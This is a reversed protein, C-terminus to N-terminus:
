GVGQLRTEDSAENYGLKYAKMEFRGDDGILSYWKYRSPHGNRKDEAGEKYEPYTRLIDDTQM